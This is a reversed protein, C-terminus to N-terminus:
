WHKKRGKDEEQLQNMLFPTGVAALCALLIGVALNLAVNPKIPKSNLAAYEIVRMNVVTSQIVLNAEERKSLLNDYVKGKATIERQVAQADIQQKITLNKGSRFDIAQENLADLDADYTALQDSIVKRAYVANVIRANKTYNIYSDAVDNAIIMADQPTSAEVNIEFINSNKIVSVTLYFSDHGYKDYITQLVVDSLMIQKETEMDPKPVNSSGLLYNSTDSALILSKSSYTAPTTFTYVIVLILVALFSGLAIIWNDKIIKLYESIQLEDAM